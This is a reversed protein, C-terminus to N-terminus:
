AAISHGLFEKAKAVEADWKELQQPTLFRVVQERLTSRISVIKQVLDKQSINPNKQRFEQLKAQKEELSTRLQAKQSDSLNLEQAFRKLETTVADLREPSM